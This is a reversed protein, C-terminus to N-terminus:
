KFFSSRTLDCNQVNWWLQAPAADTFNNSIRMQIWSLAFLNLNHASLSKTFHTESRGSHWCHRLLTAENGICVAIWIHWCELSWEPILYAFQCDPERIREEYGVRIALNMPGVHPGDPALLVWTPRKNAGHVNSDPFVIPNRARSSPCQLLLPGQKIHIHWSALITFGMTSILSDYSWRIEVTFNGMDTLHCMSWKKYTPLRHSVINCQLTPQADVCFSGLIVDKHQVLGM